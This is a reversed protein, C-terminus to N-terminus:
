TACPAGGPPESDEAAGSGAPGSGSTEQSPQPCHTHACLRRHVHVPCTIQVSSTRGPAEKWDPLLLTLLPRKHWGLSGRKREGPSPVSTGPPLHAWPGVAPLQGCGNQVGPSSPTTIVSAQGRSSTNHHGLCPAPFLLRSKTGDTQEPSKSHLRRPAADQIM